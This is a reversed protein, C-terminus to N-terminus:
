NAIHVHKYKSCVWCNCFALSNGNYQKQINKEDEKLMSSTRLINQNTSVVYKKKFIPIAMVGDALPCKWAFGCDWGLYTLTSM